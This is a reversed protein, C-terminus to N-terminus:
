SSMHDVAELMHSHHEPDVMLAIPSKYAMRVINLIVDTYVATRTVMSRWQM